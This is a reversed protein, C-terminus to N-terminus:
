KLYLIIIMYCHGPDAKLLRKAESFFKDIDFWHVGSSVTILDFFNDAFPQNEVAAFSYNIKDLEEAFKLMEESLDTGYVDEAIELLAKTSLGTGCAIDPAKDLKENLRM